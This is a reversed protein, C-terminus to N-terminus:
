LLLQITSTVLLGVLAIRGGSRTGDSRTGGPYYTKPATNLDFNMNFQAEVDSDAQQLNRDGSRLRRASSGFRMSAIGSGQVEGANRYFSAALITEFSCTQDGATCDLFTLGNSAGQGNLVAVQVADPIGNAYVRSFVFGDINRMSIGQVIAVIDPQVCVRVISGQIRSASLQQSSLAGNIANCQFADVEYAQNATKIDRGKANVDIEGISFGDTFDITLNVITERFNVELPTDSYTYLSFRVCFVVSATMEGEITQETYIEAQSINQPNVGVQMDFDRFLNGDGLPTGDQTINASLVTDPVSVGGKMCEVNWISYDVMQHHIFDSVQYGL